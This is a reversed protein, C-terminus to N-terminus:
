SVIKSNENFYEGRSIVPIYVEVEEGFETPHYIEVIFSEPDTKYGQKESWETLQSYLDSVSAM